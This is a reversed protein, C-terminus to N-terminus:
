LEVAPKSPASVNPKWAQSPSLVQEEATCVICTTWTLWAGVKLRAVVETETLSSAPACVTEPKATLMLAPVPSDVCATVNLAVLLAGERNEDCGVTVGAPVRSKVGDGDLGPPVAVTDSSAMSLPPVAEPPTSRLAVRVNRRLM